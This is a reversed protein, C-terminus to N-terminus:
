NRAKGFRTFTQLITKCKLLFFTDESVDISDINIGIRINYEDDVIDYGINNEGQKVIKYRLLLESIADCLSKQEPFLFEVKRCEIYVSMKAEHIEFLYFVGYDCFYVSPRKCLASNIVNQLARSIIELNNKVTGHDLTTEITINEIIFDTTPQM